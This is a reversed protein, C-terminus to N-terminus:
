LQLPTAQDGKSGKFCFILSSATINKYSNIWMGFSFIQFNFFLISCDDDIKMVTRIM